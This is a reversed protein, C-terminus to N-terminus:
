RPLSAVAARGSGLYAQDFAVDTGMMQGPEVVVGDVLTGPIRVEHAPRSHRAVLRRVQAIVKGGCAKVALAIASNASLLPEDEYSLNGCEDAASARIFGVELPWTPYFLYERGRLSVLEVLDQRARATFKGGQQRPDIYTGLGIETVYGPSRRAVERLWHMSAGIPWSYAEIRNERILRMLEPRKGTKPNLPNVYSGSVIRKMLGEIAVHDMGRIGVADGTGCPLYFTLGGPHGETRFRDALAGLLADPTIWGIVGVSAVTDGDRVLAAAEAATITKSM